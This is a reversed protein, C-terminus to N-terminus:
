GKLYKQGNLMTIATEYYTQKTTYGKTFRMEGYIGTFVALCVLCWILLTILYELSKVKFSEKEVRKVVEIEDLLEM